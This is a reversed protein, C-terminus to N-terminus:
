RIAVFLGPDKTVILVGQTRLDADLSTRLNALADQPLEWGSARSRIYNILPEVETIRLGDPYRQCIVNAFFPALQAAGNELIFGFSPRVHDPKVRTIWDEMERMDGDGFTSAVLSGGPKLVRSIEALARPRDPVHYLMHDAIVLDFTEDQYPIAQADIREYKFARGSVVLNRWAALLMGESFDSLTIVWGAPIREANVSWLLGTGCGLELVRASPPFKELTDFVWPFWGRPNTSFRRHLEVRADLNSSDRYQEKNLYAPDTLRSM